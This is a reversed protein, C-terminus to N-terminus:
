RERELFGHLPHHRRRRSLSNHELKNGSRQTENTQENGMQVRNSM